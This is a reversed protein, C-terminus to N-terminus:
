LEGITKLDDIYEDLTMVGLKIYRKAVDQQVEDLDRMGLKQSKRRSGDKNTLDGAESQDVSPNGEFRHPLEKRIKDDMIVLLRAPTCNPNDQLIQKAIGDAVTKLFTDTAYWKNQPKQLWDVVEPPTPSAEKSRPQTVEGVKRAKSKLEDIEDDLKVVSEGDGEDIAEVKADQLMKLAKKYEIQAVNKHHTTMDKIATDREAIQNKFNNLISSQESIRAMLEGRFNFEKADVWDESEGQWDKELRWGKSFAKEQAPSLKGNGKEESDEAM